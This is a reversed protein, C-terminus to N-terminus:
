PKKEGAKKAAAPPPAPTWFAPDAEVWAKPVYSMKPDFAYHNTWQGEVADAFMERNKARGSEGVADRYADAGHMPGSADLEALSKRGYLFMYTGSPAGATVRYVAWHEDMKAKEHAAVIDHWRDFFEGEHGPKVRFTEITVYRMLGVNVNPQYSLSKVYRAVIEYTGNLLDSELAANKRTDALAESAERAKTDKEWAEFSPYGTFYWAENPGTMATTGLWGTPWQAKALVGAWSQENAEHAAAKGPKVVERFINLITPPTNPDPAPEQASAPLTGCAVLFALVCISRANNM